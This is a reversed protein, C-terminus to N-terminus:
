LIYGIINEDELWYYVKTALHNCVFVRACVCVCQWVCVCRYYMLSNFPGGVM